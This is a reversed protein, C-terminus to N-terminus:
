PGALAATQAAEDPCRQLATRDGDDGGAQMRVLRAGLARSFAEAGAANFHWADGYAADPWCAVAPGMVTVNDFRGATAHLYAAFQARFRPSTRVYTAHNVPMALLVVPVHRAQLLALTRAYYSDILPAPAFATAGAESAPEDSGPDTGFLAHGSAALAAEQAARNHRWRGAVYGHLLSNFYFMPFRWAYLAARLRPPLHDGEEPRALTDDASAGGAAVHLRAADAEIGRMDRYSFFGMRAGFRWYDSDATFKLAGHAIVVLRPPTPCDLARRVAFWTEIPSTGSLAFNVVPLPMAAPMIGAVARSDGFVAVMGPRCEALMTRKAMWLPYDRDLFAMPCLVVYAWILGFCVVFSAASSWLFTAAAGSASPAATRRRWPIQRAPRATVGQPAPASVVLRPALATAGPDAAETM